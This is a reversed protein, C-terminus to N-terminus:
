EGEYFVIRDLDEYAKKYDDSVNEYYVKNKMEELYGLISDYAENYSIDWEACYEQIESNDRFVKYGNDQLMEICEDEFDELNIEVDVYKSM